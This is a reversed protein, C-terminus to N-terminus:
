QDKQNIKAKTRNKNKNNLPSCNTLLVSYVKFSIVGWVIVILNKKFKPFKYINNFFFDKCFKMFNQASRGSIILKYILVDKHSM